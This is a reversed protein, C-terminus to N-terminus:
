WTPPEGAWGQFPLFTTRYGNAASPDPVIRVNTLSRLKDLLADRSWTHLPQGEPMPWIRVTGDQSTSGVFRGTPDVRVGWIHARHGILLHPEEGTVPGVRVIGDRSGTVVRMGSPDWAMLTVQDGHSSLPWGRRERLDYVSATGVPEHVNDGTDLLLVHRGDPGLFAGGPQALLLEFSGTELDLRRLGGLGAILLSGDPLFAVTNIDKGDGPDFSKVDGTELDFVRIVHRRGGDMPGDAAIRRGTADFAVSDVWGQFGRLERVGSGALPLVLVSGSRTGTALFQGDPSVALQSVDAGIHRRPFSNATSPWIEVGGRGASVAIWKGKPDFAVDRSFGAPVKLVSHWRGTAPWFTVGFLDEATLWRGTPEFAAGITVVTGRGLVLPEADPPGALDWMRLGGEPAAVLWHSIRDFAVGNIQEGPKLTLGTLQRPESADGLSGVRLAGTDDLVAIQDGNDALWFNSVTAATRLVIRQGAVGAKLTSALVQREGPYSVVYGDGSGDIQLRRARGNLFGLRQADGTALSRLVIDRGPGNPARPMATILRDGRVALFGERTTEIQELQTLEPLRLV